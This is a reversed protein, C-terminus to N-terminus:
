GHRRSRMSSYGLSLILTAIIGHTSSSLVTFIFFLILPCLHRHQVLWSVRIRFLFIFLTLDRRNSPCGTSRSLSGSDSLGFGGLQHSGGTDAGTQRGGHARSTRTLSLVCYRRRHPHHRDLGTSLQLRRGGQGASTDLLHLSARMGHGIILLLLALVMLLLVFRRLGRRSYRHLRM